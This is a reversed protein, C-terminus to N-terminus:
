PVLIIQELINHLKARITRIYRGSDIHFTLIAGTSQEVVFLTGEFATIGAPHVMSDTRYEVDNSVQFTHADVAYVVGGFHRSKSGVFVVGDSASYHLGIPSNLTIIRVIEGTLTSAVVVGELYENAIWINNDVTIISRVGQHGLDQEEPEGFQIFTGSFYERFNRNFRLTPNIPMPSFSDKDFRLVCNTHQFSAYLNGSQDLCVGYAHMGGPNSFSNVVTEEFCWQYKETEKTDHDHDHEHKIKKNVCNVYLLIKSFMTSGDAVFLAPSGKYEGLAMSRLETDRSLPGGVLIESSLLCGDRSLMLVNKVENHTTLFLYPSPLCIKEQLAQTCPHIITLVLVVLFSMEQDSTM